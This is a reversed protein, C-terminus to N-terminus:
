VPSILFPVKIAEALGEGVEKIDVDGEKYLWNIKVEMGNKQRIDDLLHIIDYISKYSASNFYVFSFTFETISNPANSYDNIWHIVPRYFATADEPYSNGSIEFINNEKDIHVFPTEETGEIKLPEM